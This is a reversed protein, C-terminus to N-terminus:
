KVDVNRLTFPINVDVVRRGTFVLKSPEAPMGPGARYTAIFHQRTEAGGPVLVRGRQWNPVISASLPKGKDDLLTLGSTLSSMSFGGLPAIRFRAVRGGAQNRAAPAAPQPRASAVPQAEAVVDAPAEMEFEVTVVGDKTKEVKHIKLEGDKRGKVTKGAAKMLNDVVLMQEARDLVQASITGSLEALSRTEKAGKKLKVPAHHYLGTNWGAMLPMWGRAVVILRGPVGPMALPGAAPAPEEVATLAQNNGDVARDIKV